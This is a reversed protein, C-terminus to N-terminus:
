GLRIAHRLAFAREAREALSTVRGQLRQTVLNQFEEPITALVLAAEDLAAAIDIDRHPEALAGPQGLMDLIDRQVLYADTGIRHLDWKIPSTADATWATEAVSNLLNATKRLLRSAQTELSIMAMEGKM